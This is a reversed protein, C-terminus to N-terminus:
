SVSPALYCVAQHIRSRQESKISDASTSQRYGSYLPTYRCRSLLDAGEIRRYLNDCLYLAAQEAKDMDSYGDNKCKGLIDYYEQFEDDTLAEPILSFFLASGTNSGDKLSYIRSISSIDEYRGVNFKGNKKNFVVVHIENTRSQYEAILKEGQTGIANESTGSPTLSTDMDMYSLIAQLVSAHFTAKQLHSATNPGTPLATILHWPISLDQYPCDGPGTQM